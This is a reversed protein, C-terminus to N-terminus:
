VATGEGDLEAALIHEIELFSPREKETRNTCRRQMAVLADPAGAPLAIDVYHLKSERQM